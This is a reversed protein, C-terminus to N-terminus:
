FCYYACSDFSNPFLCRYLSGAATPTPSLSYLKSATGKAPGCLFLKGDKKEKKRQPIPSSAHKEMRKEAKKINVAKFPLYVAMGSCISDWVLCLSSHIVVTINRGVDLGPKTVQEASRIV